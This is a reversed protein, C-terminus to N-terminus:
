QIYNKIIKHTKSVREDSYVERIPKYEDHKTGSTKELFEILVNNQRKIRLYDRALELYEGELYRLFTEPDKILSM